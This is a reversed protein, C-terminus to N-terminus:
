WVAVDLRSTHSHSLNILLDGDQRDIFFLLKCCGDMGYLLNTTATGINAFFPFPFISGLRSLRISNGLKINPQAGDPLRL